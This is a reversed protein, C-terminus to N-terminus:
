FAFSEMVYVSKLIHFIRWRCIFYWYLCFYYFQISFGKRGVKAMSTTTTLCAALIADKSQNFVGIFEPLMVTKKLLYSSTVKFNVNDSILFLDLLIDGTNSLRLCITFLKVNIM